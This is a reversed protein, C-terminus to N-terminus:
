NALQAFHTNLQFDILKNLQPSIVGPNESALFLFLRGGYRKELISTEKKEMEDKWMEFYPQYKLIEEEQKGILILDYGTKLYEKVANFYFDKGLREIDDLTLFQVKRSLSQFIEELSKLLTQPGVILNVWALSMPSFTTRDTIFEKLTTNDM